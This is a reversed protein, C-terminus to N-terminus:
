TRDLYKIYNRMVRDEIESYLLRTQFPNHSQGIKRFKNKQEYQMVEGFQDYCRFKLISQSKKPAVYSSQPKKTAAVM